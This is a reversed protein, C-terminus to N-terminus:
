TSGVIGVTVGAGNTLPWIRRLDFRQQAWSEAVRLSGKAPDCKAAQAGTQEANAPAVGILVAALALAVALLGRGIM